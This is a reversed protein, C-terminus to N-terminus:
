CRDILVANFYDPDTSVDKTVWSPTDFTQDISEVELEALILGDLKGEFVDVEWLNGNHNIEYRLKRIQKETFSNILEHADKLPIEYEFESREIGESKGKITLFGSEGKIRVRVVALPSKSIYGQMILTPEPKELKAWKVHDVLYKYEIEQGM